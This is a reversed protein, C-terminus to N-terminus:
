TQSDLGVSENGLTDHGSGSAGTGLQGEGPGSIDDDGLSQDLALVRGKLVDSQREDLEVAVCHRGHALSAILGTSSGSCLDMVWDGPHSFHGVMWELLEHPKQYVNVYKDDGSHKLKSTVAPVVIVNNRSEEPRFNFHEMTRTGDVSHFGITFCEYNSNLRAGGANKM